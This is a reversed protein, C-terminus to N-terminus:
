SVFVTFVMPHALHTQNPPTTKKTKFQEAPSPTRKALLEGAIWARPRNPIARNRIGINLGDHNFAMRKKKANVKGNYPDNGYLM